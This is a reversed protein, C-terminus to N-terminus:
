GGLTGALERITTVKFLPLAERPGQDIIWRLEDARDDDVAVFAVVPFEPWEGSDAHNYAWWYRELKEKIRLPGQTGMDVEYFVKLRAGDPRVLEAYLDPKLEARGITVHCDPETMYGAIKLRGARELQKLAIYADAIALSHFNIARAPVYRGTSFLAHGDRGLQYVYQGSGGRSGGVLRREIRALYRRETLRRLARDCPTQSLGPFVLAYVHASTLQGFRAVLQVVARDRNHLVM